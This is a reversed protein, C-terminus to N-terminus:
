EKHQKMEYRLEEILQQLNDIKKELHKIEEAKQEETNTVMSNMQMLNEEMEMRQVEGVSECIVAIVLNIVIFSTLIIFAIIPAWAWPFAVMVQQTVYSWDMTMFRFLTFFTIDLRSFYDDETYGDEQLDKFLLTFVVGFIYFIILLLMAVASIRKTAGLLASVLNRM